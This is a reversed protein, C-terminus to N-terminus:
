WITSRSKLLFTEIGRSSRIILFMTPVFRTQRFPNKWDVGNRARTIEWKESKEWKFLWFNSKIKKAYKWVRIKSDSWPLSLDPTYPSASKKEELSEVRKVRKHEILEKNTRRLTTTLQRKTDRQYFINQQSAITVTDCWHTNGHQTLVQLAGSVIEWRAESIETCWWVVGVAGGREARLSFCLPLSLWVYIKTIQFLM